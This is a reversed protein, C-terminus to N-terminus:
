PGATAKLAKERELRAPAPPAARLEFRAGPNNDAVTLKFGHLNAITEAISLGLGHGPAESGREGRYFRRFIKAREHPPVGHGTDSVLVLPRGNAMRAEIRVEGGGPTFKIANDVLNSVAERMLDEDGRVPVPKDADVVMSVCKSEALPEYFDFVQACIAGLDFERFQKERAGHEVASIRLIAAITMSVKEIQALAAEMAERSQEIGAENNLAREIKARAVALPTRLDHAINDGASKLHELLRAIDDLMLNVARAVKDIDDDEGNVPLRLDLEGRMIRTIAGHIREFRQGARRAFLAGIALIVLVTPLLAIALARLVSEQLDYAERLSRGLLLVSGDPRRRAVFLAPERNGSADPLLQQQVFHAKGDVAIPPMRSVNGFVLAGKPDILAVYDLRRIDRTLRLELAQRLRAESDDQSKAAEDVLIADIRQYDLRSVQLYIFTFAAATAVSIALSFALALRFARAKFVEIIRM